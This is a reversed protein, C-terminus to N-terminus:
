VYSQQPTQRHSLHKSCNKSIIISYHFKPIIPTSFEPADLLLIVHKKELMGGNRKRSGGHTLQVVKPLWLTTRYEESNM